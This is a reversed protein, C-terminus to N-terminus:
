LSKFLDMKEQYFDFAEKDNETPEYKDLPNKYDLFDDVCASFDTSFQFGGPFRLKRIHQMFLQKQGKNMCGEFYWDGKVPHPEKLQSPDKSLYSKDDKKRPNRTTLQQFISNYDEDKFHSAILNLVFCLRETQSNRKDLYKFKHKDKPASNKWLVVTALIDLEIKNTIPM